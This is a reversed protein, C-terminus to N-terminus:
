NDSKLWMKLANAIAEPNASAATKLREEGSAITKIFGHPVEKYIGRLEGFRKFEELVAVERNVQTLDQPNYIKGDYSKLNKTATNIKKLQDTTLNLKQLVSERAGNGLEALLVAIKEYGTM